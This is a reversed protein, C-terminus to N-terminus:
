AVAARVLEAARFTRLKVAGGSAGLSRATEAVSQEELRVRVFADRRAPSMSCLCDIIRRETERAVALAEPDGDLNGAIPFDDIDHSRSAVRSLVLRAHSHFCNKAITYAWREVGREGMFRSRARYLKLFTEQVLDRALEHSGCLRRLYRSLPEFLARFVEDFAADDGAAYRVMARDAATESNTPDNV